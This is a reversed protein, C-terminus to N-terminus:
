VRGESEWRKWETTKVYITTMRPFNQGHRYIWKTRVPAVKSERGAIPMDVRYTIGYRDRHSFEAPHFPLSEAVRDRLEEWNGAEESFGLAAFLRSKDPNRLAYRVKSEPIYAREFNELAEPHPRRM